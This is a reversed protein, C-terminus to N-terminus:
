NVREFKKESMDRKNESKSERLSLLAVIQAFAVFGVCCLCLAFNMM